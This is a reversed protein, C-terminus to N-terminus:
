LWPRTTRRRGACKGLVIFDAFSLTTTWSANYIGQLQLVVEELGANGSFTFDVCGNPGGKGSPRGGGLADHFPLRVLAGINDGLM